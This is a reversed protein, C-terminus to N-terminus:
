RGLVPELFGLSALQRNLSPLQDLQHHNRPYSCRGTEFLADTEGLEFYDVGVSYVRPNLEVDGLAIVDIAPVDVNRTHPHRGDPSNESALLVRLKDQPDLLLALKLMEDGAPIAVEVPKM